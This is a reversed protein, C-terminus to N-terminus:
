FVDGNYYTGSTEQRYYGPRFGKNGAHVNNGGLCYKLMSIDTYKNFEEPEKYFKFEPNYLQHRM